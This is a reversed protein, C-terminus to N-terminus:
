AAGGTTTTKETSVDAQCTGPRCFRASFRHRNRAFLAYAYNSLGALLPLQSPWWVWAPGVQQYVYRIAPLGKLWEGKMTKVHLASNVAEPDLGWSGPDFEPQSIDIMRLCQLHDRGKLRAMELRCIECSHDYFVVAASPAHNTNAHKM